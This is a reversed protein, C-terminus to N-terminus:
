YNAIKVTTLNVQNPTPYKIAFTSVKGVIAQQHPFSKTWTM